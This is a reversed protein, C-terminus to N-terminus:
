NHCISSVLIGLYISNFLMFIYLYLICVGQMQSQTVQNPPASGSLPVEWAGAAESLVFPKNNPVAYRDYVYQISDKFYNPPVQYNGQFAGGTTIASQSAINKLFIILFSIIWFILHFVLM